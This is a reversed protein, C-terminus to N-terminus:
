RSKSRQDYHCTLRVIFANIIIICIDKLINSVIFAKLFFSFSNINAFILLFYDLAHVNRILHIDIVKKM